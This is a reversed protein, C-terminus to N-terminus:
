PTPDKPLASKHRFTITLVMDRNGPGAYDRDFDIVQGDKMALDFTAQAAERMFQAAEEPSVPPEAKWQVTMDRPRRLGSHPPDLAYRLDRCEEMSLNQIGAGDRDTRMIRVWRPAGGGYSLVRLSGIQKDFTESFRQPTGM